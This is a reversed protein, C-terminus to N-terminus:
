GIFRIGGRHTTWVSVEKMTRGDGDDKVWYLGRQNPLLKATMSAWMVHCATRLSTFEIPRMLECGDTRWWGIYRKKDTKGVRM